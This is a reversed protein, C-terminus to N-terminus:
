NLDVLTFQLNTLDTDNTVIPQFGAGAVNANPMFSNQLYGAVILPPNSRFEVASTPKPFSNSSEHPSQFSIPHNIPSHFPIRRSINNPLPIRRSINTKSLFQIVSTPIRFYNSPQHRSQFPIQLSINTKSLFEVASTRKPFSNSSQHPSQFPIPHYKELKIPSM